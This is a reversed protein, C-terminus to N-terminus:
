KVVRLWDPRIVKGNEDKPVVPKPKDMSQPTFTKDPKSDVRTLKQPINKRSRLDEVVKNVADGGFGNISDWPIFCPYPVRSFSLTCIIGTEVLELDPIPNALNYGIELTVYEEKKLYPPIDLDEHNTKINVLVSLGTSLLEELDLAELDM